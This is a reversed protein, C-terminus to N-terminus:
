RGQPVPRLLPAGEQESAPTPFAAIHVVQGGEVLAHLDWDGENLFLEEGLDLGRTRSWGEPSSAILQLLRGVKAPPLVAQGPTGVLGLVAARLIKPWLEGFLEPSAFLDLGVLSDGLAVAAGVATPFRRPLKGLAGDAERLRAEVRQVVESVLDDVVGYVLRQRAGAAQDRDLDM